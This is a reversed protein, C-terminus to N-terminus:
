RAELRVAIGQGGGICAAGVAQAKDLRRLAYILNMAIRAGSAALPHGLAIAGGHINTREEPLELERQVALFQAAFAENVDFLDIDGIQAKAKELVRRIAPAPGIGMITPDVGVVAWDTLAALPQLGQAKGWAADVVVLAAAGDAIGSANGATVLGDQQFVAKLKALGEATSDPRPSEDVSVPVSGRRAPVEVTALEDAFDGAQQAKAWRQQSRLAFADAESRTIGYKAGLKEATIGMPCGAYSDTLASWLSDELAPAKAFKLGDRLGRLVHPAQTMNETGVALVAKAEGLRILQAANLLVQFGSGCLRNLTLAPTREPLGARLGVHRALYAADTSSQAVNGAFVHDFDQPAVGSQAIAAQSAHVALDTATLAKFAGNFAGFPTRKAAVIWLANPQEAM